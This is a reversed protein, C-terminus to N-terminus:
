APTSPEVADEFRHGCYRCVKAAGQVTEACEPCVKPAPAEDAAHTTVFELEPEPRSSHMIMGGLAILGGGVGAVYIGIGANLRVMGDGTGDLIEDVAGPATFTFLDDNRADIFAGILLALGLIIVGPGVRGSQNYRHTFVLALVALIVVRVAVGSGSASQVMTNENVPISGPTEALPLFISVIAALAGLVALGMGVSNVKGTTM